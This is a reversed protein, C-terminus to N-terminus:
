VFLALSTTAYGPLESAPSSTARCKRQRPYMHMKRRENVVISGGQRTLKSIRTPFCRGSQLGPLPFAPSCGMPFCTGSKPGPLPFAPSCGIEEIPVPISGSPNYQRLFEDAIKRIDNYSLHQPEFDWVM